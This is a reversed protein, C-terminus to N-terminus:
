PFPLLDLAFMYRFNTIHSIAQLLSYWSIFISLAIPGFYQPGIM